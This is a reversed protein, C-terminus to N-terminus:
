VVPGTITMLDRYEEELEALGCREDQLFYFLYSISADLQHQICSHTKTTAHINGHSEAPVSLASILISIVSAVTHLAPVVSSM